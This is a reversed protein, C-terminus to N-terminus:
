YADVEDEIGIRSGYMFSMSGGLLGQGRLELQDGPLLKMGDALRRGGRYIVFKAIDVATFIRALYAKLQQLTRAKALDM